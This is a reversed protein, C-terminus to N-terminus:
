MKRLELQSTAFMDRYASVERLQERLERNEKSSDLYVVPDPDTGLVEKEFAYSCCCQPADNPLKCHVM